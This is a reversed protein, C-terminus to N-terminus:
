SVGGASRRKMRDALGREIEDIQTEVSADLEGRATEFIAGGPVLAPDAIIELGPPLGIRDRHEHITAADKPSVRLRHLERANLRAAASKVVGLLAVPDTAIERHLVRRAIAIALNVVGQEAEARVRARMAALEQAATGLSALPATLRDASAKAGAMEGQQYAAQIRAQIEAATAADAFGGSAGATGPGSAHTKAGTGPALARAAAPNSAHGSGPRPGSGSPSAEEALRWVIPLAELPEGSRYLKCSM